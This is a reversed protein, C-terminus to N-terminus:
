GLLHFRLFALVHRVVERTTPSDDFLDFAHPATSHNTFTVPLNRTVAKSLFRDLSANLGPTQDQGARALFLPVDNPLDEISKGAYPNAFKFAKAADAVETFGDLDLMYGYCLAACKVDSTLLSLALPVNGSSAWLGIRTEDIGLTPATNHLSRLLTHADAIPERNSYTIAVMGSAAILRAWSVSSGMDKFRCGLMRQFGQDPYGAVLVIAPLRAGTEANPPVYLDMTLAADGTVDYSQDYRVTVADTGPMEYLVTKRSIPEEQSM